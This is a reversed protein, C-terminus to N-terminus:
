KPSIKARLAHAAPSQPDLQLARDLEARAAALDHAVLYAEALAVHGEATEESWLAIKFSQIAEATRGGRLHIRGLLLHGDALYPSLYLARRVEREADRDAERAYARRAADLHFRALASQDRQSAAEIIAEVRRGPEALRPKLRELGAPVAAAAATSAEEWEASLRGALERERRAEVANGTKQLAAALVFHADGDAPNRRVAERLWHVAAAADGQRWYAYGLNFCYDADAPDAQAAERFYVTAAKTREKPDRRLQEKPDRRLQVVGLANAVAAGSGSERLAELTKAAADYHKLEIQSLAMLYRAEEYHPSTEDVRAAAGLALVHNGADSHVEWLALPIRDDGPAAKAAQELYSRRAAPTEATLGKIYFEFAQPSSLLTGEPPEPLAGSAAALQHAMRRYIDFFEGLQGEEITEEELRGRDLSLVRSRVILRDGALEYSGIVVDSAGVLQGIKITTAHTLSASPPLELRDFAGIREDRDIVDRGHGAILESLLVASGEGLWALKPDGQTNEFPMVLLTRPASQAAAGASALAWVVLALAAAAILGSRRGAARRPARRHHRDDHM